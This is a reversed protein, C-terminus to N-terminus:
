QSHSTPCPCALRSVFHAQELSHIQKVLFAELRFEEYGRKIADDYSSFFDFVKDGSILVYQGEKESWEGLNQQYIALEKELAM